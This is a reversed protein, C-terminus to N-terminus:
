KIGEDEYKKPIRLARGLLVKYRNGEVRWRALPDVMLQIVLSYLQIISYRWAVAGHWM